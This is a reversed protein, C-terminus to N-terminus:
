SNAEEAWGRAREVARRWGAYREEREAAPMAPEFTRDAAWSRGAAELSEWVGEALGAAYAAGLATTEGISARVV